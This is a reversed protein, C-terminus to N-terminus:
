SFALSMHSRWKINGFLDDFAPQEVSVAVKRPKEIASKFFEALGSVHNAFAVNAVVDVEAGDDVGAASAAAFIAPVAGLRRAVVCVTVYIAERWGFADHAM